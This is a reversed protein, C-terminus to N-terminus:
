PMEAAQIDYLGNADEASHHKEDDSRNTRSPWVRTKSPQLEAARSGSLIYPKFESFPEHELEPEPQPATGQAPTSHSMM